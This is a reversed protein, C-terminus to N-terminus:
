RPIEAQRGPRVAEVRYRMASSARPFTALCAQAFSVQTVRLLVAFPMRSAMRSSPAPKSGTATSGPDPKPIRAM